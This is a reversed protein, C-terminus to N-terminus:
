HVRRPTAVAEAAAEGRTQGAGLSALLRTLAAEEIPKVVHADFGAAESRQRDEDQGWGTLAVLLPPPTAGQARIARAAEYGDMRPLGIDMLIVDPRLVAAAEVAALGDHALHTEHGGLSLMQGLMEAGDVNDDVILVRLSPLPVRDDPAAAITQPQVTPLRVEFESGHGIGRSRVEVWGDHMRALTRVLTLGIGLGMSPRELSTDVQAFMDFIRSLQDSAIGIGTDRVRVLVDRGAPSSAAGDRGERTDTALEVTLWVYGDRDTFKAANNLLNGIIQALRTPDAHVFIPEPQMRVALTLGQAAFLPRVADVAREILPGLEVQERRLVLKGRSIRGADLLDDVLRVMQEVQRGLVDEAAAVTPNPPGSPRALRMVDLSARIPALPNRLEHALMALFESKHRDSDHLAEAARRRESIDKFVVAVRLGSGDAVRFANVELVRSQTVLAREFRLAKGTRLIEAYTEIWENPEGPFAERITRGVVDSVGAHVGFARNAEVYRFDVTEGAADTVREIICFGDDITAFLTRYREESERLAAEATKLETIDIAVSGVM